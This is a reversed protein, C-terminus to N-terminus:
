RSSRRAWSVQAETFGAPLTAARAPADAAIGVAIVLGIVHAIHRLWRADMSWEEDILRLEQTFPATARLALIV